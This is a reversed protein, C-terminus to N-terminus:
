FAVRVAVQDTDGGLLWRAERIGRDVRGADDTPLPAAYGDALHMLDYSRIWLITFARGFSPVLPLPSSTLPGAAAGDLYFLAAGVHVRHAEVSRPGYAIDYRARVDAFDPIFQLAGEVALSRSDFFPARETDAVVALARAQFLRTRLRADVALAGRAADGTALPRGILGAGVVISPSRTWRALPEVEVRGTLAPNNVAAGTNGATLPVAQVGGGEAGAHPETGSALGTAWSVGSGLAFLGRVPIGWRYGDIDYSAALERGPLWAERGLTGTLFLADQQPAWQEGAVPVAFYGLRAEGLDLVKRNGLAMRGYLDRVMGPGDEKLRQSAWPSLEAEAVVGVELVTSVLAEARLRMRPLGVSNGYQDRGLAGELLGGLRLRYLESATEVHGPEPTEPQESVIVVREAARAWATCAILALVWPARRM